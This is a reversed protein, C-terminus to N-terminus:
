EGTEEGRAVEWQPTIAGLRGPGLSDAVALGVQAENRSQWLPSPSGDTSGGFHAASASVALTPAYEARMFQTAPQGSVADGIATSIGSGQLRKAM